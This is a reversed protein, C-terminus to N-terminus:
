PIKLISAWDKSVSKYIIEKEHYSIHDYLTKKRVFERQVFRIM